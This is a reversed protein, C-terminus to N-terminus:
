RRITRRLSTDQFGKKSVTITITDGVKIPETLGMRTAYSNITGAYEATKDNNTVTLKVDAGNPYGQINVTIDGAKVSSLGLECKPMEWIQTEGGMIKVILEGKFNMDM